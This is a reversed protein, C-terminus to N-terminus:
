DLTYLKKLHVSVILRLNLNQLNQLGSFGFGLIIKARLLSVIEM